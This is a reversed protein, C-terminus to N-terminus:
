FLIGFSVIPNFWSNFTISTQLYTRLQPLSFEQGAIFKTYNQYWVGRDWGETDEWRAMGLGVGLYVKGGNSDFHFIVAGDVLIILDDDGPKHVLSLEFLTAGRGVALEVRGALGFYSYRQGYVLWHVGLGYRTKLTSEGDEGLVAPSQIAVVLLILILGVRLSKM